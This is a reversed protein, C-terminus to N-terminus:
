DCQLIMLLLLLQHLRYHLLLLLNCKRLLICELLLALEAEFETLGDLFEVELNLHLLSTAHLRRNWIAAVSV